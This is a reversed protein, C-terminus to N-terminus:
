LQVEPILITGCYYHRTSKSHVVITTTLPNVDLESVQYNFDYHDDSFIDPLQKGNRFHRLYMRKGTTHAHAM